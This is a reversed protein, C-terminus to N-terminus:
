FCPTETPFKPVNGRPGALPLPSIRQITDRPYTHSSTPFTLIEAKSHRISRARARARHASRTRDNARLASHGNATKLFCRSYVTRAATSKARLAIAVSNCGGFGMLFRPARFRDSQGRPQSLAHRRSRRGPVRGPARLAGCLVVASQQPKTSPGRKSGTWAWVGELVLLTQMKRGCVTTPLFNPLYFGQSKTRPRLVNVLGLNCIPRPRSRPWDAMRM